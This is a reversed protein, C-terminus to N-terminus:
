GGIRFSGILSVESVFKDEYDANARGQQKLIYFMTTCKTRSTQGGKVPM